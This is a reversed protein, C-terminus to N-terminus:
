HNRLVDNSSSSTLPILSNGYHVISKFNSVPETGGHVSVTIFVLLYLGLTHSLFLFTPKGWCTVLQVAQLTQTFFVHM